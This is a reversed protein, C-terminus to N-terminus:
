PVGGLVSSKHTPYLYIKKILIKVNYIKEKLLLLLLLFYNIKKKIEFCNM